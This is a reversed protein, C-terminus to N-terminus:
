KKVNFNETRVTCSDTAGEWYDLVVILFFQSLAVSVILSAIYFIIM